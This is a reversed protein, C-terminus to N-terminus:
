LGITGEVGNALSIGASNATTLGIAQAGLHIGSLGAPIAVATTATTGTYFFLNTFLPPPLLHVFCGPAALGFATAPTPGGPASFLVGGVGFAPDLNTASLVWNSNEAPANANLSLGNCGNGYTEVQAEGRFIWTTNNTSTRHVVIEDRVSDYAGQGAILAPATTAPLQTWGAGDWVWTDNLGANGNINTSGGYLVCRKRAADYSLGARWRQPPSITPNQQMWSTGDWEWTQDLLNPVSDQGGFLVVRGREGDYTMAPLYVAVPVNGTPTVNAWTIGDWRYTQTNPFSDQRKGAALLIGNGDYAAAASHLPPLQGAAPTVDAWDTGDWEWTDGYSFGLYGFGAALVVLRRVPDYAIAAASRPPPTHAPARQLWGSGNWTWTEATIGRVDFAVCEAREADYAFAMAGLGGWQNGPQPSTNLAFWAQGHAASTLLVLLFAPRLYLTTTMM